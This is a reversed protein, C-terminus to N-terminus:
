AGAAANRRRPPVPLDPAAEGRAQAQQPQPLAPIAPVPPAASVSGTSKVIGGVAEACIERHTLCFDLAQKALSAQTSLSDGTLATQEGPANNLWNKGGGSVIYLALLAVMLRTIMM